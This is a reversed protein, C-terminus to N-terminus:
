NTAKNKKINLALISSSLVKLLESKKEPKFIWSMYSETGARYYIYYFLHLLVSTLLSAESKSSYYISTTRQRDRYM